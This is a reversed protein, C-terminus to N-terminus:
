AHKLELKRNGVRLWILLLAGFILSSILLHLPQLYAPVSGYAMGVGTVVSGVTLIVLGTSLISYGSNKILQYSLWGNSLLIVWSFSRHVIFELGLMSIWEGRRSDFAFAIQDLVERVQVGFVMQIISLVLCLRVLWVSVQFYGPNESTEHFLYVLLGVILFAFGLHVSVTWPTLKTSVVISGFWGTFVVSLWAALAAVFLKGKTKVFRVSRFLVLSIMVGIIVGVIRNAYEIRSKLLSFDEEVSISKDSELQLAVENMGVMKLMRVFKENKKVRIAANVEKYNSPLEEVTSPPVWAGFCRPWDPCGMGSGSSRVV